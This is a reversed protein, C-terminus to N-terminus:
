PSTPPPGPPARPPAGGPPASGPLPPMPPLTDGQLAEVQITLKVKSDGEEVSKTLGFQARDFETTADGGCVERNFMPHPRCVFQTFTLKVPKTVGRLTLQGDVSAPLGNAFHIADSKYIATPYRAVDFYDPGQMIKDLLPFGFNISSTDITIEVKGTSHERDLWVKGFSKNFKGQWHSIGAHGVVFSPYTHGPEITYVQPAAIAGTVLGCSTLAVLPAFRRIM